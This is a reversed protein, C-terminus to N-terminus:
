WFNVCYVQPPYTWTSKNIPKMKIVPLKTQQNEHAGCQLCYPIPPITGMWVKPVAVQGGCISCIGIIVIDSYM